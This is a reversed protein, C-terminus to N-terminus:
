AEEGPGATANGQSNLSATGPRVGAMGQLGALIIKM